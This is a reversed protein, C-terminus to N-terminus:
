RRSIAFFFGGLIGVLLVLAVYAIVILVIASLFRNLSRLANLLYPIDRGQTDVVM